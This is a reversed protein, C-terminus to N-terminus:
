HKLMTDLKEWSIQRIEEKHYITLGNKDSEIFFGELFDPMFKTADKEEFLFSCILAIIVDHSIMLNIPGQIGIAYDLFLKTGESLTRMGPLHSGEAIDKVIDELPRKLFIPGAKEPNETFPGPDGLVVTQEVLSQQKAGHLLEETTHVCRLIPSTYITQFPTDALTQGLLEATKRGKPTLSLGEGFTGKEAQYREAHRIVALANKCSKIASQFREKLTFPGVFQVSFPQNDQFTIIPFLTEFFQILLNQDEKHYFSSISAPSPFNGHIQLISVEHVKGSAEQIQANIKQENCFLNLTLNELPWSRIHKQTNSTAM